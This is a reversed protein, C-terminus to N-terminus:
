PSLRLQYAKWGAERYELAAALPDKATSIGRGVQIIDSMQVAIAHHPTNFQQGLGDGGAELKIGPTLHIMGQDATLRRQCVYGVVFNKFTIGMSVCQATYNGIALSGATSMESVLLCGRGKPVGVEALGELCGPGAVAHSTVIDAWDAIKCHGHAYQAKVVAGIDCFKRDEFVVFDHKAALAQLALPFEPTYNTLIDSHTKLMCIQPGVLDALRLVEQADTLDPNFSLNSQKREMTEFLRKTMQNTTIGARQQYSLVPGELPVPPLQAAM